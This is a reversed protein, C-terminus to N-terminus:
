DILKRLRPAILERRPIAYRREIELARNLPVYGRRVWQCVAQSRVNLVEALRTQNGAREVAIEIGTM